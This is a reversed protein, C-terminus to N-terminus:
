INFDLNRDEPQPTTDETIYAIAPTLWKIFFPVIERYALQQSLDSSSTRNGPIKGMAM